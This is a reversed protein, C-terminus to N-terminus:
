PKLTEEQLCPMYLLALLGLTHGSPLCTAPAHPGIATRIRSNLQSECPTNAHFLQSARPM